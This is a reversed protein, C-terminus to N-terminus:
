WFLHLQLSNRMKWTQSGNKNLFTHKNTQSNVSGGIQQCCESNRHVSIEPNELINRLNSEWVCWYGNQSYFCIFIPSVFRLNVCNPSHARYTSFSKQISNSRRPQNPLWFINHDLRIIDVQRYLSVSHNVSKFM